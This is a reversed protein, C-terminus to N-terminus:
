LTKGLNREMILKCGLIMVSIAMNKGKIEKINLPLIKVPMMQRIKCSVKIPQIGAATQATIEKCFARDSLRFLASM